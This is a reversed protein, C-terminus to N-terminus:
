DELEGAVVQALGYYYTWVRPLRTRARRHVTAAGGADIGIVGLGLAAVHPLGRIRVAVSTPVAVYSRHAFIQNRAAQAIADRWDSVKAEVTTVSPLITRWKPVLQHASGTESIAGLKRLEDLDRRVRVAPLRLREAITELRAARVSRLYALYTTAHAGLSRLGAVLPSFGVISLDPM